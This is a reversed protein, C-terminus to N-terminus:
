EQKLVCESPTVVIDNWISIQTDLNSTNELGLVARHGGNCWVRLLTQATTCVMDMDNLSWNQHIRYGQETPDTLGVSHPLFIGSALLQLLRRMVKQPTLRGTEEQKPNNMICHAVLLDSVWVNLTSFGAFRQRMDRFIRTLLPAHSEQPPVCQITSSYWQTHKIARQALQCFEPSIHTGPCLEPLREFPITLWVAVTTTEDKTIDFGYDTSNLLYEACSADTEKMKNMVKRSVQGITEHTPLTSIIVALDVRKNNKLLCNRTYSGITTFEIIQFNEPQDMDGTMFDSQTSTQQVASIGAIIKDHLEKLSNYESEDPRILFDREELAKLIDDEDLNPRIRPFSKECIVFDFPVHPVFQQPMPPRPGGMPPRPGGHGGRWGGRFHGRGRYGGRGRPRYGGRQYYSM